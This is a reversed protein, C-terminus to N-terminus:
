KRRPWLPPKPEGLRTEPCFRALWELAAERDAETGGELEVRGDLYRMLRATGFGALLTGADGENAYRM